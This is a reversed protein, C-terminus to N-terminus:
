GILVATISKFADPRQGPLNWDTVWRIEEPAEPGLPHEAAKRCLHNVWFGCSELAYAHAEPLRCEVAPDCGEGCLTCPGCGYSGTSQLGLGELRRGLRRTFRNIYRQQHHDRIGDFQLLLLARASRLLRVTEAVKPSRPPCGKWGEVVGECGFVGGERHRFPIRCLERIEEDIVAATPLVLGMRLRYSRLRPNDQAAARVATAIGEGHTSVLQTFEATPLADALPVLKSPDRIFELTKM